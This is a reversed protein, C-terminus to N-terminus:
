KMIIARIPGLGKSSNIGRRKEFYAVEAYNQAKCCPDMFWSGQLIGPRRSALSGM